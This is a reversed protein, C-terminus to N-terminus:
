VKWSEEKTCMTVTKFVIINQRAHLSNIVKVLLNIWDEPWKHHSHCLNWLCRGPCLWLPQWKMIYHGLTIISMEWTRSQHFRLFRRDLFCLSLKFLKCEKSIWASTLPMLSSPGLKSVVIQKRKLLLVLGLTRTEMIPYLYSNTHVSWIQNPRWIKLHTLHYSLHEWLTTM